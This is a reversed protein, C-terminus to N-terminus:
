QLHFCQQHPDVFIVPIFSIVAAPLIVAFPFIIPSLAVFMDPILETVAVDNKPLPAPNVFRGPIPVSPLILVVPIIM